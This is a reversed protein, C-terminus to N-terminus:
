KEKMPSALIITPSTYPLSPCVDAKELFLFTTTIILIKPQTNRRKFFFYARGAKQSKFDLYL